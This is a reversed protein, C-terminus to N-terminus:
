SSVAGPQREEPTAAIGRAALAAGFRPNTTLVCFPIALLLGGAWPLAFPIAWPAGAALVAFAAVGLLTPRGLLRAADGWSVGRDARNQPAWGGRAGRLLRLLFGTKNVASVPSLVTTFAIEALAGALVRGRGGYRAAERGQVLLQLYGALKPAHMAAWWALMAGALAGAGVGAFGGALAAVAAAVFALVWLPACLFLLVAQALQWRAMGGLGPRRLLPLYQMNGEAWREDRRLFEPLAPPNGELSGREEPWCWVQWGAQHLAIAELQDHSLPFRGDPLPQLRAHARFPAVRFAANHGWFPGHPGQWWGQGTAWARMGARMGFQFLRPFPQPTPRGVILQQVLAIRPDAALIGTLQRVANGSMESDADLIVVMEYAGGEADLFAMVNGAKFGAGDARRRLFIREGDARSSRFGRLAADEAAVFGPDRTDSLLWADVNTDPLEDLLRGLAALPAAMAENRICMALAVRGAVPVARRAAPLVCGPPDLSLLLISLGTVAQAASLAVWPLLGALAALLAWGAVGGPRVAWAAAGLAIAFALCLLFFVARRLSM